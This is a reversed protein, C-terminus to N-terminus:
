EAVSVHGTEAVFTSFQANTVPVPDWWLDGVEVEVTPREEPYHRDSGLVNLGGPVLRMSETSVTRRSSVQHHGVSM